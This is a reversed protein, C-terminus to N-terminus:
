GRRRGNAFNRKESKQILSRIMEVLASGEGDTVLAIKLAKELKERAKRNERLALEVQGCDLM